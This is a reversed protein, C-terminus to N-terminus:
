NRVSEQKERVQERERGSRKRGEVQREREYATKNQQMTAKKNGNEAM